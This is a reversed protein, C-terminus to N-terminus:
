SNLPRMREIRKGNDNFLITFSQGTKVNGLIGNLKRWFPRPNNRNEEIQNKLFEEKTNLM